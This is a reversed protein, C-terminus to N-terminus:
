HQKLDVRKNLPPKDLNFHSAVLNEALEEIEEKKTSQISMITQLDRMASMMLQMFVQQPNGEVVSSKDGLARKVKEVSKKFGESGLIDVLEQSMGYKSYPNEGKEFKSQRSPEMRAGGVDSYDIPAENIEKKVNELLTKEDKTLGENVLKKELTKKVRLFKEMNENLSM